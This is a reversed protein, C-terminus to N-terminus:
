IKSYILGCAQLKNNVKCIRLAYDLDYYPKGTVPNELTDIVTEENKDLGRKVSRRPPILAPILRKFDLKPQRM